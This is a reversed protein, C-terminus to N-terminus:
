GHTLLIKENICHTAFRDKMVAYSVMVDDRPDGEHAPFEERDPMPEAIDTRPSAGNGDLVDKFMGQMIMAKGLPTKLFAPDRALKELDEGASKLAKDIDEPSAPAAGGPFPAAGPM